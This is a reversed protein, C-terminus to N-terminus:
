LLLTSDQVDHLARLHATPVIPLEGIEEGGVKSLSSRPRFVTFSPGGEGGGASGGGVTVFTM